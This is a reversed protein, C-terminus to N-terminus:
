DSRYQQPPPGHRLVSVNGFVMRGPHRRLFPQRANVSHLEILLKRSSKFVNGEFHADFSSDKIALKVAM